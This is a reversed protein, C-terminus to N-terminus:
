STCQNPEQILKKFTEADMMDDYTWRETKEIYVRNQADKHNQFWSRTIDLFWLADDILEPQASIEVNNPLTISIRGGQAGQWFPFGFGRFRVGCERMFKQILETKTM